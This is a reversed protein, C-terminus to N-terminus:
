RQGAWIPGKIETLEMGRDKQIFHRTQQSAQAGAGACAPLTAFSTAGQAAQDSVQAYYCLKVCVLGGICRVNPRVIAFCSHDVVFCACCSTGEV